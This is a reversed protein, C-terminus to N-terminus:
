NITLLLIMPIIIFIAISIGLIFKYFREKLKIPCQPVFNWQALYTTSIEDSKADPDEIHFFEPYSIYEQFGINEKLMYTIFNTSDKLKDAIQWDPSSTQFEEPIRFAYILSNEDDGLKLGYQSIESTRDALQAKLVDKFQNYSNIDSKMGKYAYKLSKNFDSIKRFVKRIDLFKM